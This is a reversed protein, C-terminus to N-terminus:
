HTICVFLTLVVCIVVVLLLFGIGGLKRDQQEQQRLAESYRHSEKVVDELRNLKPPDGDFTPERSDTV